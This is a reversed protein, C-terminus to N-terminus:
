RWIRHKAQNARNAGNTTTDAEKRTKPSGCKLVDGLSELYKAALKDRDSGEEALRWANRGMKNRRESNEALQRITEAM